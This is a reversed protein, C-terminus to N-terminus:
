PYCVNQCDYQIQKLVFGTPDRNKISEDDKPNFISKSKGQKAYNNVQARAFKLSPQGSQKLSM